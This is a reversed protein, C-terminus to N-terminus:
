KVVLVQKALLHIIINIFSMHPCISFHGCLHVFTFLYHLIFFIMPSVRNTNIFRFAFFMKHASIIAMREEIFNHAILTKLLVAIPFHFLELFPHHHCSCLTFTSLAVICRFIILIIFKINHM